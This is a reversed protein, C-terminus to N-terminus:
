TNPTADPRGEGEAWLHLRSPHRAVSMMSGWLARATESYTLAEGPTPRHQGHAVQNRLDRLLQYQAVQADRVVGARALMEASPRAKTSSPHRESVLIALEEVQQRLVEWSDLIVFSPEEEAMSAFEGWLSEGEDDVDVGEIEAKGTNTRREDIAKEATSEAQALKQGFEAEQGFGSFKTIRQLAGKIANRYLVAIVLAIVPWSTLATLYRLVMDWDISAFFTPM